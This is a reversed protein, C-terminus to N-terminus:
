KPRVCEFHTTTEDFLVETTRQPGFRNKTCRIYGLQPRLSNWGKVHAPDVGKDVWYKPWVWHLILASEHEKKGSYRLWENEPWLSHMNPKRGYQSLAIVPVQFRKAVDKLGRAIASVRLEESYGETQVKEDYDVFVAVLGETASIHQCRAVIHQLTPAPEDDIHIPLQALAGLSSEYRDCDEQTADSRLQRINIRAYNSAGRAALQERTMECSFVLVAGRKTTATARKASEFACQVLLSTKGGGTMAAITTLEGVPFGGIAKDLGDPGTPAFDTAKGQRWEASRRKAEEVAYRVHTQRTTGISLASLDYALRDVIELVDGSGIESVARRCLHSAQREMWKEIVVRAHYEVNAISALAADIETIYKSDIAPDTDLVTVYNVPQGESFLKEIAQFIQRHFKGEFHEARLHMVAQSCASADLMAAGLVSMEAELSIFESRPPDQRLPTSAIQEIPYRGGDGNMHRPRMM